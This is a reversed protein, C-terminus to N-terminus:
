KAAQQKAMELCASFFREADELPLFVNLNDDENLICVEVRPGPAITVRLTDETEIVCTARVARIPSPDREVTVTM